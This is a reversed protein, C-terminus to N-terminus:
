WSGERIAVPKATVNALNRLVRLPVKDATCGILELATDSDEEAVPLAVNRCVSNASESVQLSQRCVKSTFTMAFFPM